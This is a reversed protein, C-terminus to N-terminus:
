ITPTAMGLSTSQWSLLAGAALEVYNADQMEKNNLYGHSTVIAPAPTEDTASSPIFLYASMSYEADTELKLEKMVVNGGDTQIYNSVMGSLLMLIIAVCLWVKAKKKINGM